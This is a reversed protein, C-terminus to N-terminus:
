SKYNKDLYSNIFCHTITIKNYLITQNLIYNVNRDTCYQAKM